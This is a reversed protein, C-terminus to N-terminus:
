DPPPDPDDSPQGSPWPDPPKVIRRGTPSTWATSGDPLRQLQWDTNHKLHHHRCCLAQLNTQITNSGNWPTIHDIECRDARAACGPMRCTRDRAVIRDRLGASPHRSTSCDLLQGLDNVVFRRWEADPDAMAQRTASAPIPGYGALDAPQNSAGRAVDFPVIINVRARRRLRGHRDTGLVLAALADARREDAGRLDDPAPTGGAAATIREMMAAATVADHVSWIGALGDPLPRLWVGADQRKAQRHRGEAAAPDARHIATTLSRTFQTVNQEAANELVETEVKACTTRDLGYCGEAAARAHEPNITGAALAELTKPLQGVLKHAQVIRAQTFRYGWNLVCGIEERDWDREDGGPDSVAAIDRELSASLQALVVRVQGLHELIQAKTMAARDVGILAEVSTGGTDDM